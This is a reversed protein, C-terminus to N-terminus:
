YLIIKKNVLGRGGTIRFFYVGPPYASLDLSFKRVTTGNEVVIGNPNFLQWKLNEETEALRVTVKGTTPNPYISTPMIPTEPLGVPVEWSYLPFEITFPAASNEYVFLYAKGPMMYDFQPNEPTWMLSDQWDEIFFIDDLHGAFLEEIAVPKDTLVPLYNMLGAIFYEHSEIPAGYLPLCLGAPDINEFVCKYGENEWTGLININPAPWYYLGSVNNIIELNEVIPAVVEPVPVDSKDVFTSLGRFDTSDILILQTPIHLTLGATVTTGNGTASVSLVVMNNLRDNKGIFYIPAEAAPDDFTGDGGTTWVIEDANQIEADIAYPLYAYTEFDFDYCDLFDVPELQIVPDLMEFGLNTNPTKSPNFVGGATISPMYLFSLFAILLIKTKM